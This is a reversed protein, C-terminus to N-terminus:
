SVSCHAETWWWGMGKGGRVLGEQLGAVEPFCAPVQTCSEARPGSPHVQPQLCLVLLLRPRTDWQFPLTLLLGPGDGVGEPSCFSYSGHIISENM